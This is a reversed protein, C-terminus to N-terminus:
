SSVLPNLYYWLLLLAFEPDSGQCIAENPGRFAQFSSCLTRKFVTQSSSMAGKWEHAIKTRLPHFVNLPVQPRSATPGVDSTHGALSNPGCCNSLGEQGPCSNPFNKFFSFEKRRGSYFSCYSLHAM